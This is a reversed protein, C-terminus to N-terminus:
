LPPLAQAGPGTARYRKASGPRTLPAWASAGVPAQVDLRGVGAIGGPPHLIIHQCVEPGEAYLHKQVRLPGSHRRLVPRTTEGFRAYDLELEAHWHPTFLPTLATM